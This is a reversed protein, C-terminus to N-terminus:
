RPTSNENQGPSPATAADCGAKLRSRPAEARVREDALCAANAKDGSELQDLVLRGPFGECRGIADGLLDARAGERVADDRPSEAVDDIQTRREDDGFALDIFQQRADLAGEIVREYPRGLLM